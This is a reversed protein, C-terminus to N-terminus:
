KKRIHCLITPRSESVADGKEESSGTVLAKLCSNGKDQATYRTRGPDVTDKNEETKLAQLSTGPNCLIRAGKESFKCFEKFRPYGAKTTGKM